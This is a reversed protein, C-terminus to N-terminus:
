VVLQLAFVICYLPAWSGPSEDKWDVMEMPAAPVPIPAQVSSADDRTADASSGEVDSITWQDLLQKVEKGVLWSMCPDNEFSYKSM